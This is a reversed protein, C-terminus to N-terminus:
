NKYYYFCLPIVNTLIFRILWASKMFRVTTKKLYFSFHQNNKLYFDHKMSNFHLNYSRQGSNQLRVWQQMEQRWPVLLGKLIIHCSHSKNYQM